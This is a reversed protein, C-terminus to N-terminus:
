KGGRHQMTLWRLLLSTGFNYGYPGIDMPVKISDGDYYITVGLPTLTATLDLGSKGAPSGPQLEYNTASIFDPSENYSSTDFGLAQWQSWTKDASNWVWIDTAPSESYFINNDSDLDYVTASGITFSIHKSGATQLISICNYIEADAGYYVGGGCDVGKTFYWGYSTPNISINNAFLTTDDNTSRYNVVCGDVINFAAVNGAATWCDSDGQFTIGYSDAGKSHSDHIYNRAILNNQMPYGSWAYFLIDRGCYAMENDTVTWNSASQTGVAHADGNVDTVGTRNTERYGIYSFTCGDVIGYDPCNTKTTCTGYIGNSMWRIDCDLWENGNQGEVQAIYSDSYGIKCSQWRTYSVGTPSELGMFEINSFVSYNSKIFYYGLGSGKLYIQGTPDSNDPMHVGFTDGTGGTTYYVSGAISNCEALDDTTDLITMSAYATSNNYLLYYDQACDSILTTEYVNPYTGNAAWTYSGKYYGTWIRAPTTTTGDAGCGTITIADSWSSGGMTYIKGTSTLNASIGTVDNIFSGALYYTDNPSWAAISRLDRFATAPTTGDGPPTGDRDKWYYSAGARTKNYIGYLWAYLEAPKKVGSWICLDDIQGTLFSGSGDLSGVYFNKGSTTSITGLTYSYRDWPSARGIDFKYAFLDIKGTSATYTAAIGYWENLTTACDSLQITKLASGNGVFLTPKTGASIGIYWGKFNVSDYVGCVVHNGVTRRVLAAVSFDVNNPGPFGAPLSASAISLYNSGDFSAAGTGHLKNTTDLAVTGSNVLTLAHVEDALKLTGGDSDFSWHGLVDSDTSVDNVALAPSGLLLFVFTLFLAKKM